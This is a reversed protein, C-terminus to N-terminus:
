QTLVAEQSQFREVVNVVAVAFEREHSISHLLSVRSPLGRVSLILKEGGGKVSVDKVGVRYGAQNLAKVTAEKLAFRAAICGFFEGRRKKLCYDYGEPLIRKLFRSGFQNVLKEIRRVSVIDVGVGLVM